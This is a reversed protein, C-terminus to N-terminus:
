VNVHKSIKRMVDSESMAYDKSSDDGLEFPMHKRLGNRLSADYGFRRDVFCCAICDDDEMSINRLAKVITEVALCNYFSNFEDPMMKNRAMVVMPSQLSELPVGIFIALRASHRKVKEAYYTKSKVPVFLVSRSRSASEQHKVCAQKATFNDHAFHFELGSNRFHLQCNLQLKEVMQINPCFVIAGGANMTNKVVRIVFDITKFYCQPWSSIAKFSYTVPERGKCYLHEFFFGRCNPFLNSSSNLEYEKPAIVSDFSIQCSESMDNVERSSNFLAIIVLPKQCLVKKFGISPNKCKIYIADGDENVKIVFDDSTNHGLKSLDLLSILFATLHLISTKLAHAPAFDRNFNGGLFEFLETIKTLNTSRAIDMLEEMIWETEQENSELQAFIQQMSFIPEMLADCQQDHTQEIGIELELCELQGKVFDLSDKTIVYSYSDCLAEKFDSWSDVVLFCNEFLLPIKVLPETLELYDLTIMNHENVLVDKPKEKPCNNKKQAFYDVWQSEAEFMDMNTRLFFLNRVKVLTSIQDSTPYKQSITIQSFISRSTNLFTESSQSHFQSNFHGSSYEYAPTVEPCLPCKGPSQAIREQCNRAYLIKNQCDEKLLFAFIATKVLLEKNAGVPAKVAIVKKEGHIADLLSRIITSDVLEPKYSLHAHGHYRYSSEFVNIQPALVSKRVEPCPLGRELLSSMREKFQDNEKGLSLHRMKENLELFGDNVHGSSWTDISSVISNSEVDDFGYIRSKHIIPASMEAAIQDGLRVILSTEKRGTENSAELIVEENSTKKKLERDLHRIHKKLKDERLTTEQLTSNLRRLMKSLEIAVFNKPISTVLLYSIPKKDLPCAKSRVM